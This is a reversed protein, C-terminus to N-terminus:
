KRDRPPNPDNGPYITDKDRIKGHRGHIFLEGGGANEVIGRGREIAEAQTVHHSSARSAAPKVVNWGGDPDPVM